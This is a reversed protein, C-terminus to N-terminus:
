YNTIIVEKGTRKSADSNVFRKVNIEEINYGKYLERILSTNHNTLMLFCGVKDLRKFEYALRKHDEILFGTQTYSDFSDSKLPAYPSDFFIFDGKKATKTVDLFDSCSIRVNSLKKSSSLINDRSYVEVRNKKNWPVNYLGKKNVRYIGNFCYKNLMIFLAAADIDYIEEEIKRNYKDRIEKYRLLNMDESNYYDLLEILQLPSKKVFNYLNILQANIDNIYSEGSLPLNFFVAGGGVFPEYYNNFKKPLKSNIKDLLQRKGGVWKVFPNINTYVM